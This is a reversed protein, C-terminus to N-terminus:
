GHGDDPLGSVEDIHITHFPEIPIYPAKRPTRVTKAHVLQCQACARLARRVDETMGKWIFARRLQDLTAEFGLHGALNPKHLEWLLEGRLSPPVWVRDDEWLLGGDYASARPDLKSVRVLFKAFEAPNEAAWAGTASAIRTEWAIRTTPNVYKNSFDRQSLKEVDDDEDVAIDDIPVGAMPNLRTESDFTVPPRLTKRRQSTRSDAEPHPIGAGIEEDLASLFAYRAALHAERSAMSGNWLVRGGQLRKPVRERLDNSMRRSTVENMFLDMVPLSEFMTDRTGNQSSRRSPRLKKQFSDTCHSFERDHSHGFDMQIRSKRPALPQLSKITPWLTALSADNEVLKQCIAADPLPADQNHICVMTETVLDTREGTNPRSLWDALVIHPDEACVYEISITCDSIEALWRRVKKSLRSPKGLIRLNRHDTLCRVRRRTLFPKFRKVSEALALAELEFAAYRAQTESLARSFLGILKGNQLLYGALAVASADTVLTVDAAPDFPSLPEASTVAELALDWSRSAEADLPFLSNSPRKGGRLKTKDLRRGLTIIKRLPTTIEAFRKISSGIFALSGMSKELEKLNAPPPMNILDQVRGPDIRIEKGVLVKSGLVDLDHRFLQAKKRSLFVGNEKCKSLFRELIEFHEDVDELTVPLGDSAHGTALSIDDVYAKCNSEMGSVLPSVMREMAAPSFSFGFPWATWTMRKKTVPHTFALLDADAPDLRVQHFASLIDIASGVKAAALFQLVDQIAPM